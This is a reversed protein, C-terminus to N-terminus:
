RSAATGALASEVLDSPEAFLVENGRAKRFYLHATHEWSFGIGGHIQVNEATISIASRSAQALAMAIASSRDAVGETAAWVAHEVLSRAYDADTAMDALLHKIAQFSGIPRGFQEREKAYAVADALAQEAVGLQECAVALRGLDLLEGRLEDAEAEAVPLLRIEVDELQVRGIARTLDLAPQQEVHADSCSVIGWRVAGDIRVPLVLDVAHPADVVLELVGSTRCVGGVQRAELLGPRGTTGTTSDRRPLALVAIREGAVLAGLHPQDDYGARLVAEVGLWAGLLPVSALNRGVAEWFVGMDALGAGAGGIEERVTMATAGLDKTLRAWLKMDIVGAAMAEARNVAEPRPAVKQILADVIQALEARAQAADPDTLIM